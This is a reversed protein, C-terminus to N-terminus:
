LSIKPWELLINEVLLRPNVNGDLQTQGHELAATLASAKAFGVKHSLSEIRPALGLNVPPTKAGSAALMVDRWVSSWVELMWRVREKDKSCREVYAFRERRNSELMHFADGALELRTELLGADQRFRLALGLRGGSLHALQRAEDNTTGWKEVLAKELKDLPMSRLRLSECRSVITPLLSEADSATLLLIVREPAEELTKLLANQASITAEEFRLILAIRYRAEYPAMSLTHQLTRVQDILLNGGHKESQVVSLDPHQMKEIQTCARCKGCCGGPQPPQTCNIAQAFRLALTRRGVGSPGTLLYAHRVQKQATHEQLMRAAWEHGVVGWDM